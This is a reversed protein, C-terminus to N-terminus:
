NVYYRFYKCEKVVHIYASTSKLQKIKDFSKYVGSYIMQNFYNDFSWSDYQPIEEKRYKTFEHLQCLAIMYNAFVLEDNTLNGSNIASTFLDRTINMNDNGSPYDYTRYYAMAKWQHGYYSSNYYAFALKLLNNGINRENYLKLLKQALELRNQKPLQNELREFKDFNRNKINIEFPNGPIQNANLIQAPLTKFIAIAEDLTEPNRMLLTAKLENLMNKCDSFNKVKIDSRNFYYIAAYQAIKTEPCKELDSLLSDIKSISQNSSYLDWGIGNGSFILKKFKNNKSSKHFQGFIEEVVANYEGLAFDSISALAPYSVAGENLDLLIQGITNEDDETLAPKSAILNVCYIIQKQIYIGKDANSIESLIESCMSYNENLYNLYAYSLKWFDNQNGSNLVSENFKLLDATYSRVQQDFLKREQDDESNEDYGNFNPTANEIKHIERSIILRVFEHDGLEKYISTMDDLALSKTKIAKIFHLTMREENNKCFAKASNLDAQNKIRLSYYALERRSPCNMYVKSFYYNSEGIRGSKKLAGAFQDMAYYSINSSSNTFVNQYTKIVEQFQHSHRYLKIIQYAYREKLHKDLSANNIKTNGENILPAFTSTNVNELEEGWSDYANKKLFEEIRLAYSIYEVFLNEKQSNRLAKKRKSQLWVMESNTSKFTTPNSRYIFTKLDEVNYAQELYSAWSKLNETQELNVDYIDSNYIWANYFETKKGHNFILQKDFLGFSYYEEFCEYSKLGAFLSILLVLFKKSFNM